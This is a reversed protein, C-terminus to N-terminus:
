LLVAGVLSGKFRGAGPSTEERICLCLRSFSAKGNNKKWTLFSFLAEDRSLTPCDEM